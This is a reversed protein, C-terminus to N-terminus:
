SITNINENVWQQWMKFSAHRAVPEQYPDYKGLGEWLDKWKNEYEPMRVIINSLVVWAQERIFPNMNGLLPIIHPLVKFGLGILSYASQSFQGHGEDPYDIITKVLADIALPHHLKLLGQAVLSRIPPIPSELTKLFFESCSEDAVMVLAEMTTLQLEPDAVAFFKQLPVIADTARHKINLLAQENGAKLERILASIEM